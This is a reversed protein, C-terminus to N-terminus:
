ATAFLGYLPASLYFRVASRVIKNKAEM